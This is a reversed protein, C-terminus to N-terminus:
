WFVPFMFFKNKTEVIPVNGIKCSHGGPKDVFRKTSWVVVASCGCAIDEYDVSKSGKAKSDAKGSGYRGATLLDTSSTENTITLFFHRSQGCILLFIM